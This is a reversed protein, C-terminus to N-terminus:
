NTNLPEDESGEIPELCLKLERGDIDWDKEMGPGEGRELTRSLTEKRIYDKMDEVARELREDGSYRTNIKQTYGLDLDKRMTQIRRVVDRVLGETELEENMEVNVYVELGKKEGKVYEEKVVEYIEVDEEEIEYGQLDVSGKEDLAKQLENGDAEEIAKAVKEAEGKFKPGLVSYNPDADYETLTEDDRLVELEKVNLEDKLIGKFTKVARKTEKEDHVVLAGKLPQRLKIDEKQRAKRGLEAIDIVTEMNEELEEDIKETDVEPYDLLHVSEPGDEIPLVTKRYIREAIFPTFPAILETLTNLVEYLTNYASKKEEEEGEWFRRRSRRLYWNSLRDIFSEIARVSRHVELEEMGDRIERTLSNVESLLWRDIEDNVEYETDPVFDDINANHTFFTVVNFLTNITKNIKEEALNQSFPSSRWVPSDLFTLRTADSGVEDFVVDPEVVNGKSKSMKEGDENLILGLTLCSKYAPEDYLLSSIALLSYFWGRTQDLAETIFDVPFAEEFEDENEFPYHFQAFPASGSDYWCDIVYDVREMISDCEPCDLEVRDVFPRHFEFDDPLLETSKEELEERSGICEEHGNECIWIPLPTGWFRNRSLSWDKLDDLFNGFRGHKLHEPKWFIEDNNDILKQKEWSTRIFWSELAYYLLPSDCRWCFPYTHTVSGRKILDGREELDKMIQEDADKVFRGEHDPVESTFRGSEDVPNVLDVGEKRCLDYDDEGFAPAIHVIGTGEELTVFDSSCVYHSESASDVYEFIPEYKEGLLEEGKVTKLVEAEDFIEEVLQEALYYKEGEYEVLAYEIDEGVTLLLNSILTWPTTTWALFYADEDKLKFRIYISPDETQDYGQAVEHSSLPTGCRPCYPVVKHGRELLGNKWHQKLSWWVSEIYDDEMTIYANDYDIWFGLRESMERWEKEYKFVSEKCMENFKELGYEEIEDKSDIGLEKEVEIEVPLGHTDWGAINPVVQYGDMTKYRLFTDKVVRTLVHGIHPLGNATPPGETFGFKKERERNRSKEPIDNRKWFEIIEEEKEPLRAEKEIPEFQSDDESM